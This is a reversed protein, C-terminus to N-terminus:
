VPAVRCRGGGGALHGVVGERASAAGVTRGGARGRRDGRGLHGQYERVGVVDRGFRRRHDIAPTCGPVRTAEPHPSSDWMGASVNWVWRALASAVTIGQYTLIMAITVVAAVAVGVWWAVTQPARPLHSALALVAVDTLFASTIRPWSLALGLRPQAKMPAEAIATDVGPRGDVMHRQAARAVLDVLADFAKAPLMADSGFMADSRINPHEQTPGGTTKM